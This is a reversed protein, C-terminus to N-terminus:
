SRDVLQERALDDILTDLERRAEARDVGFEDSLTAEIADPDHGEGLLEWTRAGTVNLSYMQDSQLNVLVIEDGVRRSVVDKSPHVTDNEM